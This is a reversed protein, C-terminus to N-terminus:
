RPTRRPPLRSGPVPWCTLPPDGPEGAAEAGWRRHRRPHADPPACQSGTAAGATGARNSGREHMGYGATWLAATPQPVDPTERPQSPRDDAIQSPWMHREMYRDVLRPFLAGALATIKAGSGVFVDRPGHAASYVIVKSRM